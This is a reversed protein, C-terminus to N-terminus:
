AAEGVAGGLALRNPGPPPVRDPAAFRWELRISTLLPPHTTFWSFRTRDGREATTVPTPLPGPESSMPAYTGWVTPRARTPLDLIMTLDRTLFRVERQFWQGWKLESMQYRYCITTSSGPYLPRKVDGTKFLIYLKKYSDRDQTLSWEITGPVEDLEATFNLEELTVPNERYWRLSQEPDGPFRDPWIRVPHRVVPRMGVNRVRRRVECFYTGGVYSLQAEERDVVIDVGPPVAPRVPATPRSGVAQEEFRRRLAGGAALAHDVRAAFAESPPYRASEIHSVYSPDFGILEALQKQSLGRVRRWTTLERAFEDPARSRTREDVQGV